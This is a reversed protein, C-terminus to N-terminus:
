GASLRARFTLATPSDGTPDEPTLTLMDGDVAYHVKEHLVSVMADEVDSAPRECARQTSDLPGFTLEDGDVSYTGQGLNCGLNARLDGSARFIVSASAGAPVSSVADGSGISELKWQPGSLSLNPTVAGEDSLVIATKDSTITLADGDRALTPHSTLLNAFWTDQDMLAPDCGMETTALANGDIVLVGDSWTAGGSMSNCGASAGISGDQFSLRLTTGTVLPSPEGDVTVTDGVFTQGEVDLQTPDNNSDTSSNGCATMTLLTVGLIVGVLARSQNM